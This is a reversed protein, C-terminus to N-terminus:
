VAAENLAERVDADLEWETTPRMTTKATGVKGHDIYVQVKIPGFRRTVNLHHGDREIEAHEPGLARATVLFEDKDIRCLLLVPSSGLDNPRLAEENEEIWDALERLGEAHSTATAM